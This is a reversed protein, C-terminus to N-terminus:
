PEKKAIFAAGAMVLLMLVGIWEFPLAMPGMLQYGTWKLYSGQFQVGAQRWQPIQIMLCALGFFIGMFVLVPPWAHGQKSLFLNPADSNRKREQSLMIGFLILMLLGGVYLLLHAAAMWESQLYLFVVVVQVMLIMFALSAQLLNKTFFLFGGALLSILFFPWIWWLNTEM